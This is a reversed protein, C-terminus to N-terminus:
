SWEDPSTILSVIQAIKFDENHQKFKRHQEPSWYRHTNFLGSSSLEFWVPDNAFNAGDREGLMTRVLDSGIPRKELCRRFAFACADALQLLPAGNKQVFHPVDVINNIEYTHGRPKTGTVTEWNSSRMDESQLTLSVKQFIMGINSLHRRIEPVDEAIIVGVESGNLYNSLFFDAREICNSFALCHEYHNEAISQPIHEALIHQYVGSFVVGLAIPLKHKQPLELVAKYFQLRHDSSWSGRYKGGSFIDKAHFIFNSQYQTPVHSKVLDALNSAVDRLETDGDVVVSAVVRVPEKASTGAEDTYIFRAMGGKASRQDLLWGNHTVRRRSFPWM